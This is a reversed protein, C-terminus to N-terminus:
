PYCRQLNSLWLSRLVTSFLDGHEEVDGEQLQTLLWSVVDVTARQGLQNHLLAVVSSASNRVTENDDIIAQRIAPILDALYDLLLQKTTANILEALGICVGERSHADGTTLTNMFIPMLEPMVREGLKGVLDGVCRAAVRQKERNNAALNAILRTMLSPLLEKLTRPTNQVLAKWVQACAQKVVQNEDSRVIYLCALVHCRWDRPLVECFMLEASHTPIRHARLIQEILQGILQVSAHRLRWDVDFVGEEFAPLLRATHSSGFQKTLVQAARFATDRVSSTDDAVGGLLVQLVDEIYPEFSQGMAVPLYVFLGLYGEKIEPAAEKNRANALIDPLLMEIREVGMAM